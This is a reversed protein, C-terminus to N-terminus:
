KLMSELQEILANFRLRIDGSDLRYKMEEASLEPRDALSTISKAQIEEETFCLNELSM